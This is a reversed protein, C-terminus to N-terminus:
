DIASAVASYIRFLIEFHPDQQRRAVQTKNTLVGAYLTTMVSPGVRLERARDKNWGIALIAMDVCDGVGPIYDRKLKVWRLYPDNYKSEAAKLVLGEEIRTNSLKFATALQSAACAMGQSVDIRTREALQCFGPIKRIVSVLISRRAQYSEHLLSRGNYHLIDFYSLFLHRAGAFRDRPQGGRASLNTLHWFEEIGPGHGGQRDSENYPLMEAELIVSTVDPGAPLTELRQSLLHHHPANTLPLGISGLIINHTEKRDETSDRKSKSYIKVCPRGHHRWVHIQMREGDYKTEAWIEKTKRGHPGAIMKLASEISRGKECKPIEVNVGLVPGARVRDGRRRRGAGGGMGEVTRCVLNLDGMVRYLERMEWDWVKMAMFVDLVPPPKCTASLQLAIAPHHTGTPLPCTIPRLDQLIIQTICNLAQPSLTSTYIVRLITDRNRPNQPRDTGLDSFSSHCALEDLLRDINALTIRSDSTSGRGSSRLEAVRKVEDGLSAGQGVKGDDDWGKLIEEHAASLTMVKAIAGALTKEQMQYRRRMTFHPFLLRFLVVGTDAPLPNPFATIYKNFISSPDAQPELKGLAHVFSSFREFSLPDSM